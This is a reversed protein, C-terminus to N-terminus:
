EDNTAAKLREAKGCACNNCATEPAACNTTISPRKMSSYAAEALQRYTADEGASRMANAIRDIDKDKKSLRDDPELTGNEIGVAQELAALLGDIMRPEKLKAALRRGANKKPINVKKKPLTKSMFQKLKGKYTYSFHTPASEEGGEIRYTDMLVRTGAPFKTLWAKTKERLKTRDTGRLYLTMKLVANPPYARVVM